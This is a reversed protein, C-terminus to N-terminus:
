SNKDTKLLLIIEFTQLRDKDEIFYQDELDQFTGDNYLAPAYHVGLKKIFSSVETEKFSKLNIGELFEKKKLILENPLLKKNQNKLYLQLSKSIRWDTTM